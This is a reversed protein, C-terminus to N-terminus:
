EGTVLASKGSARHAAASCGAISAPKTPLISQDARSTSVSPAREPRRGDPRDSVEQPSQVRHGNSRLLTSGALRRYRLHPEPHVESRENSGYYMHDPRGTRVM